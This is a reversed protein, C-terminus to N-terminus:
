SRAVQQCVPLSEGSEDSNLATFIVRLEMRPAEDDASPSVGVQIKLQQHLVDDDQVVDFPRIIGGGPSGSADLMTVDSALPQWPTLGTVTAVDDVTWSRQQLQGHADNLRLQTCVTSAAPMTSWEVYWNGDAGTGPTTIDTAYRVSADLRDFAVNVQTNAWAMTESKTTSRFMSVFSATVIVLFVTSIAMAVVMEMLTVGDDPQMRRGANHPAATM